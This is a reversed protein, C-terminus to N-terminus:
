SEGEADDEETDDDGASHDHLDQIVQKLRTGLGELDSPTCEVNVNIVVSLGPTVAPSIAYTDTVTPQRAAVGPQARVNMEATPTDSGQGSSADVTKVDVATLKGDEERLLEAAKLVDVVSRSGTMVGTNKKQGASYAIHSSITAEDMGNRIKVAALIRSLFESERVITRWLRRIEEPMEHMLAQALDRGNPTCQKDRGGQLIGADVFFGANRSIVTTHMGVQKSVDELGVPGDFQAYGKIIKVLEEYSSKPLRFRDDAM